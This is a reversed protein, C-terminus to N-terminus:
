KIDNLGRHPTDYQMQCQNMRWLNHIQSSKSCSKLPAWVKFESAGAVATKHALLDLRGDCPTDSVSPEFWLGRRENSM